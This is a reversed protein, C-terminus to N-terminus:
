QVPVILNASFRNYMNTNPTSLGLGFGIYTVNGICWAYVDSALQEYTSGSDTSLRLSGEAIAINNDIGEQLNLPNGSISLVPFYNRTTTTIKVPFTETTLNGLTCAFMIAAVDLNAGFFQGTIGTTNQPHRTVPYWTWKTMDATQKVEAIEEAQNNVTQELADVASQATAAASKNSEMQADIISMANNYSTLYNATDGANYVPINFNPTKGTASM